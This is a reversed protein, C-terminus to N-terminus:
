FQAHEMIFHRMILIPCKKNILIKGPGNKLPILMLIILAVSIDRCHFAALM